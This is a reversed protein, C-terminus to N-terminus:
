SEVKTNASEAPKYVSTPMHWVFRCHLHMMSRHTLHPHELCIMLLMKTLSSTRTDYEWEM